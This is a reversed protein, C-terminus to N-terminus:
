YVWELYGGMKQKKSKINRDEVEDFGCPCSKVILIVNGIINALFSGRCRKCITRTVKLVSM